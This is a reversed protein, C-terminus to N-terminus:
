WSDMTINPYLVKSIYPPSPVATQATDGQSQYMTIQSISSNTFPTALSYGGAQFEAPTIPLDTAPPNPTLGILVNQPINWNSSNFMLYANGLSTNNVWAFNRSLVGAGFKTFAFSFYVTNTVPCTLSVSFSVFPDIHAPVGTNWKLIMDLSGTPLSINTDNTVAYNLNTGNVSSQIGSSTTNYRAFRTDASTVNGSKITFTQDADLVCDSLGTVTVTQYTAYDAPTFTLSPKDIGVEQPKDIVLPVTVNGAPPCSINVKFFAITGLESTTLSSNQFFVIRPLNDISDSVSVPITISPINNYVPDASTIAATSISVNQLGDAVCDDKGIVRLTQATSYNDATFILQVPDLEIQSSDSVSFTVIVDSVPAKRLELTFPTIDGEAQNLSTVNFFLPSDGRFVATM